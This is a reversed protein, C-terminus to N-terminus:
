FEPGPRTGRGGVPRPRGTEPVSENLERHGGEQRRGAAETGASALVDGRGSADQEDRIVEAVEIDEDQADEHWTRQVVHRARGEEPRDEARQDAGDATERDLALSHARRTQLLREAAQPVVPDDDEERFPRAAGGSLKALQLRADGHQGHLGLYGDD